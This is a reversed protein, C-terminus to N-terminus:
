RCPMNYKNTEKLIVNPRRRLDKNLNYQLQVFRMTYVTYRSCLIQLAIASIQKTYIGLFVIYYIIHATISSAFIDVISVVITRYNYDVQLSWWLLKLMKYAEFSVHTLNVSICYIPM